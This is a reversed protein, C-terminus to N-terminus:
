NNFNITNLCSSIGSFTIEAEFVIANCIYVLSKDVEKMAFNKVRQTRFNTNDYRSIGSMTLAKILNDLIPQLILKFDYDHQYQNFENPAQSMHLIIIKANRNVSPERENNTDVGEVLWILPFSEIGNMTLYKTLVEETGWNFKANTSQSGVTVNPLIEVLRLLEDEFIIM